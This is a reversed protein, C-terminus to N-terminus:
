KFKYGLQFTIISFPRDNDNQMDPVFAVRVRVDHYTLSTMLGAYPLMKNWLNGNKDKPTDEYGSALGVFPGVDFDMHSTLQLPLKAYGYTYWSLKDFSNNYGGVSLDLQDFVSYSFGLGPNYWTYDMRETECEECRKVNYDKDGHISALNFDLWIDGQDSFVPMSITLLCITLLFKNM